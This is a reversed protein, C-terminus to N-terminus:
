KGNGGILEEAEARFRRLEKQHAPFLGPGRREVWEVSRDLWERAQSKNGLQWHAMAIFFGNFGVNKDPELQESKELATLAELWNGTCYHSVGLTNALSANDPAGEVALEALEVALGPDRLEANTDTALRWATVNISSPTPLGREIGERLLERAQTRYEQAKAKRDTEPIETAVDLQRAQAVLVEILSGQTALSKDAELAHRYAEIAQQLQERAQRYAADADAARNSAALLEGMQAHCRALGM